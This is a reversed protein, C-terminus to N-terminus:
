DSSFFQTLPTSQHPCSPPTICQSVMQSFLFPIFDQGQGATLASLTFYESKVDVVCGYICNGEEPFIEIFVREASGTLSWNIEITYETSEANIIIPRSPVTSESRLLLNQSIQNRRSVRFYFHRREPITEFFLIGSLYLREKTCFVNWTKLRM